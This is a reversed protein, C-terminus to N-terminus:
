RTTRARGPRLAIQIGAAFGRGADQRGPGRRRQLAQECALAANRLNNDKLAADAESALLTRRAGNDAVPATSLADAQQKLAILDSAADTGGYQQLALQALRSAEKANGDALIARI